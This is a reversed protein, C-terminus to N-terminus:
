LKYRYTNHPYHEVGPELILATRNVKNVKNRRMDDNRGITVHDQFSESNQGTDKAIPPTLQIDKADAAGNAQGVQQIVPKEEEFYDNYQPYSDVMNEAAYFPSATGYEDEAYTSYPDEDKDDDYSYEYISYDDTYYPPGPQRHPQFDREYPDDSFNSHVRKLNM